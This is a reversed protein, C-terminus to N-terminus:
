KAPAQSGSSRTRAAEILRGCESEPGPGMEILPILALLPNVLGLAVAGAGRLVIHTKDVAVEPRSFSGKVYIPGRLAVPSTNRTAPELTLDLAEHGLDIRGSGTITSVETDVLLGRSVMVGGKVDFAAVACHLKIAKDGTITLQLIEMLHLGVEEMLLRSIEGGVLVLGVKGDATALMRGVSNGKGALDFEGNFQGANTKAPDPGPLLKALHLHRAVMRARAAIPDHRGDLSIGGKLHGGALGFDLPDVSLVSDKLTFHALLDDLPVGAARRITAARLTVDADVSNWRATRFSQDPLVHAGARAAPALEAATQKEDTAAVPARAGILPGLDDMDLLRSVLEGHVFPRAAAHDIQLSGAFDSRGTTGAFKEFRWMLGSHVVRGAVAYAHTEPLAIGLLPFLQAVSDGRLALQMDVASFKILSTVSGEAKIRTHGLTADITLPYPVSDDHLALVSGASGHAALPLGKYHGRVGFIVGSAGAAGPLLDRSSVEARLHTKQRTDDYGLLGQDLTLRGIPIRTNEDSQARDLLWTRRGDPAQELFVVPRTLRVEPFALKRGLLAVLDVSFAVRELALMQKETAWSPNAFTVAEATVQLSPWATRVSLAGGISLARGTARFVLDQLPARAWNWGFVTVGAIFLLPVALLAAALWKLARSIAASVQLIPM